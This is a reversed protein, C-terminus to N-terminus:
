ASSEEYHVRPDWKGTRERIVDLLAPAAEQALAATCSRLVHLGAPVPADGEPM